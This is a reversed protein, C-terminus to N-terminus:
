PRNVWFGVGNGLTKGQTAFDLYGKTAIYATLGGSAELNPSYFYWNSRTIDWAWLSTLNIPVAGQGAAAGSLSRNFVSPSVDDVTALLNWGALLGTVGLSYGTGSRTGLSGAHKANVWYGEGPNIAALVGYGKNTAYNLLAAADMQPSYFQWGVASRDWKWVTNVLTTDGFLATVSIPQELSNGLLNWGSSLDLSVTAAAGAATPTM